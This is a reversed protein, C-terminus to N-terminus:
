GKLRGTLMFFQMVDGRKITYKGSVMDHSSELRPPAKRRAWYQVTNLSIELSTSLKYMTMEEPLNKVQKRTFLKVGTKPRGMHSM